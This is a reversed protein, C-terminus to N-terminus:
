MDKVEQLNIEAEKALQDEIKDVQEKMDHNDVNEKLRLKMKLCKRKRQLWTGKTEKRPKTKTVRIKGFSQHFASELKKRFMNFQEMFPKNNEFAKTLKTSKNNKIKFDQQCEDNKFNFLETREPKIPLYKLSFELKLSNHDSEVVKGKKFRAIKTDGIEDVVMKTLFPKMRRCVLFFDLVAEETGVVTKRSRTVVGKCLELANVVIM